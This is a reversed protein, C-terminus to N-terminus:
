LVLFPVSVRKSRRTDNGHNFVSGRHKLGKCSFYIGMDLQLAGTAQLKAGIDGQILFSCGASLPLCFLFKLNPVSISASLFTGSSSGM